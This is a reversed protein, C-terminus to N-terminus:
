LKVSVTAVRQDFREMAGERAPWTEMAARLVYMTDMRPVRRTLTTLVRRWHATTVWDQQQLWLQTRVMDDRERIKEAPPKIRQKLYRGAEAPSRSWEIGPLRQLWLRSCSVQTLTQHKSVTNLVRPCARALRELAAAPIADRYYREVLRLPPLAWWPADASDKACLEEWDATTMRGAVLALDHLHLLRLTRGCISGAAHLLLHSMLANVSPYPNLGPRPEPPQIRSTIDVPTVPLKEGVHTHLEINIPTDRHEGLCHPPEGTSPKLVRHRWHDFSHMYGLNRLLRTAPELDDERVLLDIDAMPRQGPAYVGLTHLAAGKLPVFVLGAASADVHIRELLAAIRRHRAEVHARQARLFEEWPRYTWGHLGGLLPSVGHAAAAASAFRWDLDNWQTPASGIEGAALIAALTETTRHLGAEIDRLSPPM